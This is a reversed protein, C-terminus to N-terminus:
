KNFPPLSCGPPPQSRELPAPSPPRTGARTHGGAPKSAPGKGTCLQTKQASADEPVRM